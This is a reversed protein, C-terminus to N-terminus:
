APESFVADTARSAVREAWAALKGVLARTGAPDLASLL